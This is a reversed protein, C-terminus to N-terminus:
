KRDKMDISISFNAFKLADLYNGEDLSKHLRKFNPNLKKITDKGNEIEIKIDELLNDDIFLKNLLIELIKNTTSIGGHCNIEVLDERTYTKPAKMISVLVEDIMNEGDYIYGYNITHSECKSLDKGKFCKNVTSIAERGSLRIISIAEVGMTTSIAVITDNM